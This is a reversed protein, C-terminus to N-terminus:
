TTCQTVKEVAIAANALLLLFFLLFIMMIMCYCSISQTMVNDTRQATHPETVFASKPPACFPAFRLFVWHSTFCSCCSSFSVSQM